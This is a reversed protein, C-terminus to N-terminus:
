CDCAWCDASFCWDDMRFSLRNLSLLCTRDGSAFTRQCSLFAAFPLIHSPRLSAKAGLQLKHDSNRTRVEFIKRNDRAPFGSRMVTWNLESVIRVKWPWRM